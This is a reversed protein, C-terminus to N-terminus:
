RGEAKAIAARAMGAVSSSDAGEGLEEAGRGIELMKESYADAYALLAKLAALLEPAAVMLRLDAVHRAFKNSAPDCCHPPWVQESNQWGKKADWIGSFVGTPETGCWPEDSASHWPGPTHTTSM